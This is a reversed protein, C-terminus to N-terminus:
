CAVFPYLSSYRRFGTASVREFVCTMEPIPFDRRTREPEAQSAAHLPFTRRMQNCLNRYHGACPIGEDNRELLPSLSLQM